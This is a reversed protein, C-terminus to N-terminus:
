LEEPEMANHLEDTISKRFFRLSQDHMLACKESWMNTEIEDEVFYECDVVFADENEKRLRALGAKVNVCIFEMVISSQLINSPVRSEDIDDFDLCGLLHPKILEKWKKGELGLTKKNFADVYRLGVRDFYSPNYIEIFSRLPHQITELFDEWNSYSLTSVIFVNSALLVRSQGDKSIFCYLNNEKTSVLPEQNNSGNLNLNIQKEQTVEKRFEPFSNRIKEQFDVPVNEEIKLITPFNVQFSVENLPCKKYKYRKIEKM